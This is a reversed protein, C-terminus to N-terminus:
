PIELTTEEFGLENLKHEIYDLGYKDEVEQTVLIVLIHTSRTLAVYLYNLMKNRETKEKFFYPALDNTLIFLCKEGELGKTKDISRVQYGSNITTSRLLDFTSCLRAFETKDISYNLSRSLYRILDKNDHNINALISKALIYTSQNVKREEISTNMVISQIEYTLNSEAKARDSTNTYYRNNKKNIYVYDYALSIIDQNIEQDIQSEIMYQLNGSKKEYPVQREEKLVYNNSLSIHADPCRRNTSIYEVNQEFDRILNRFSVQGKLDQKPDGVLLIKIDNFHLKKLVESFHEDVDQAEDVFIADLYRGLMSLITKRKEIILKNDKSKKSLIWKAAKTVEEVHIINNSKLEKLKSNKFAHNAPLLITSVNTLKEEYILHHFPFIVEQLLFSHITEVMINKPITGGNGKKIMDRIQDKAANTYTVVYIIKKNDIEHYRKLVKEAMSHTKGAGAGAVLIKM